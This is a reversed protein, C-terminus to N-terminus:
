KTRDQKLHYMTKIQKSGWLATHMIIQLHSHGSNDLYDPLWQSKSISELNRWCHFVCMKWEHFSLIKNFASPDLFSKSVGCGPVRTCPKSNKSQLRMKNPFDYCKPTGALECFLMDHLVDELFLVEPRLETGGIAAPTPFMGTKTM